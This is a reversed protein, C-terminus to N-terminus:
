GIRQQERQASFAAKPNPIKILDLSLLQEPTLVQRLETALAEIYLFAILRMFVM